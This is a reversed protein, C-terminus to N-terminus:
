QQMQKVTRKDFSANTSEGGLYNLTVEFFWAINKAVEIFPLARGTRM